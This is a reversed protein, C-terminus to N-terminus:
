NNVQTCANYCCESENDAITVTTSSPSDKNTVGLILYESPIELDIYFHEFTEVVGDDIITVTFTAM